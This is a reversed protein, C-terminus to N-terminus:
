GRGAHGGGREVRSSAGGKPEFENNRDDRAFIGQFCPNRSTMGPDSRDNENEAEVCSPEHCPDGAFILIVAGTMSRCGAAVMGLIMLPVLFRVESRSQFRTM